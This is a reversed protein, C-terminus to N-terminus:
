SHSSSWASVDEAQIRPENMFASLIRIHEPALLLAVGRATGTLNRWEQLVAPTMVFTGCLPCDIRTELATAEVVAGPEDCLSCDM